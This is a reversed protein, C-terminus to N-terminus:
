TLNSTEVATVIFFATKQSLAKHAKYSGVNRFLTFVIPSSPVANATVLLRIISTIREGSVDTRVLAVRHLM